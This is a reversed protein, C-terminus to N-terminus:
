DAKHSQALGARLRALERQLEDPDAADGADVILELRRIEREISEHYWCVFDGAELVIMGERGLYTVGRGVDIAYAQGRGRREAGCV